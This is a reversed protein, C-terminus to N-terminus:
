IYNPNDLFSDGRVSIMGELTKKKRSLNESLVCDYGPHYM